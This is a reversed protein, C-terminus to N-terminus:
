CVPDEPEDWSESWFRDEERRIEDYDLPERRDTELRGEEEIQRVMDDTLEMEDRRKVSRMRLRVVAGAAVVLLALGLWLVESV